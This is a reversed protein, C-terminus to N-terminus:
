CLAVATRMPLGLPIELAMCITSVVYSRSITSYDQFEPSLDDAEFTVGNNNSKIERTTSETFYDNDVIM